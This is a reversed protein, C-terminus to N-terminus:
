WDLLLSAGLKLVTSEPQRPTGGGAITEMQKWIQPWLGQPTSLVLASFLAAQEVVSSNVYRPCGVVNLHPQWFYMLNFRYQLQHQITGSSQSWLSAKSALQSTLFFFFCFLFSVLSVLHQSGLSCFRRLFKLHKKSQLCQLAPIAM